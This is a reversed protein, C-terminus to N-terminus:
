KDGAIRGSEVDAEYGCGAYGAIDAWNDRKPSAVIRALKLGIVLAAVEGPTIVVDDKLKHRLQVTWIKATDTFNQTPKGYSLNRDGTILRKAEDLLEERPTAPFDEATGERAEVLPGYEKEYYALRDWALEEGTDVNIRLFMQESTYFSNHWKHDAPALEFRYRGNASYYAKV